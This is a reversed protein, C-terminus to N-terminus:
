LEKRETHWEGREDRWVRTRHTPEPDAGRGRVVSDVFVIEDPGDGDGGLRDLRREIDRKTPTM